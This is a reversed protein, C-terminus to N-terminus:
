SVQTDTLGQDVGGGDKGCTMWPAKFFSSSSIRRRWSEVAGLTEKTKGSGNIRRFRRSVRHSLCVGRTFLRDM